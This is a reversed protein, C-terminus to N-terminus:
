SWGGRTWWRRARWITRARHTEHSDRTDRAARHTWLDHSAGGGCGRVQEMTRETLQVLNLPERGAFEKRSFTLSFPVLVPGDQTTTQLCISLGSRCSWAPPVEAKDRYWLHHIRVFPPPLLADLAHVMNGSQLKSVTCGLREALKTTVHTIRGKADTVMLKHDTDVVGTLKCVYMATEGIGGVKITVNVTITSGLYMHKLELNQMSWTTTSTVPSAVQGGGLLPATGNDSHAADRLLGGTPRRALMAAHEHRVRALTSRLARCAPSARVPTARQESIRM